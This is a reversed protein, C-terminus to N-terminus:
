LILEMFFAQGGDKYHDPTISVAKFGLKRYFNIAPHNTTRVHLTIVEVGKSILRRKVEEFLARGVGQQRHEAEVALSIICGQKGNKIASIYGEVRDGLRAVLFTNTGEHFLHLFDEPTYADTTFAQVEVRLIEDLDEATFEDIHLM